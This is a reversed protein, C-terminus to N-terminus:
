AALPLVRPGRLVTNPGWVIASDGRRLNPLGQLLKEFAIRAELRALQAGLCYHIGHGFSLPHVDPRSIDLRDPEPFRKPDRNGAGLLLVIQQGRQFRRGQFDRDELVLRSTLQVPSDYRVLEEVADAIRQPERRLLDLQEPHNLLALAGNGILGTTTENGAILLLLCTSFLEMTTLREGGEEAAVLGSLLDERPARRRQEVQEDLWSRMEELAAFARRRDENTGDGLLLTAENSWHRFRQQDQVDVGLMEAIIVVPLPSAFDAMLDFHSRQKLDHVIAEVVAEIRPRMREVARPTFAKSVLTRLRTHDPPDSRLMSVIGYEYADPVGARRNRARERQYRVWHREDASYTKDALVAMIDDYRSLVWGDAPYSRHIPDRERLAKYAPYPDVRMGQQMPNFLVGTALRELGARLLMETGFVLDDLKEILAM